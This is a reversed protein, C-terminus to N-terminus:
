RSKITDSEPVAFLPGLGRAKAPMDRDVVCLLAIDQFSYTRRYKSLVM